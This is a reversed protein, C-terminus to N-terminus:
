AYIRPPLENNATKQFNKALERHLHQANLKTSSREASHLCLHCFTESLFLLHPRSPGLMCFYENLCLGQSTQPVELLHATQISKPLKPRWKTSKPHWQPAWQIKFPGWTGKKLSLVCVILFTLSEFPAEFM